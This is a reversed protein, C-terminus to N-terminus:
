WKAAQSRPGGPQTDFGPSGRRGHETAGNVFTGGPPKQMWSSRRGGGSTRAYGYTDGAEAVIQHFIPWIQVWDEPTAQRILMSDLM